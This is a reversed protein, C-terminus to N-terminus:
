KGKEFESKIEEFSTLLGKEDIQFGSRMIVNSDAIFDDYKNNSTYFKEIISDDLNKVVFVIVGLDKYQLNELEKAYAYILNSIENLTRDDKIFLFSMISYSPFGNIYSLIDIVSKDQSYSNLSDFQTLCISEGKYETKLEESIKKAVELNLYNDNVVFDEKGIEAMFKINKLEGETCYCWAKITTDDYTGITGGLSDVTFSLNYKKNLAEIVKSTYEQNTTKNISKNNM